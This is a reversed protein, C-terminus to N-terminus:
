AARRMTGTAGTTGAIKAFSSRAVSDIHSWILEATRREEAQIDRALQATIADGAEECAAILAEYMAMESAEVSYAMVLDQTTKEADDHGLQATKPAMGFMHALFSKVGSPKGGLERLRTELRQWQSHTEEAHQEFLARCEAYEAEKANARLTNEFNKEAAIADELYRCIVDNPTQQAM